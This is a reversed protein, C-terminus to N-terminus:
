VDTKPLQTKSNLLSTEWKISEGSAFTVPLWMLYYLCLFYYWQYSSAQSSILNSSPRLHCYYPCHTDLNYNNCYRLGKNVTNSTKIVLLRRSIKWLIYFSCLSVLGTPPHSWLLRLFAWSLGFCRTHCDMTTSLWCGYILRVFAVVCSRADYWRVGHKCGSDFIM